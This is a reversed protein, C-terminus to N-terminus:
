KMESDNSKEPPGSESNKLSESDTLVSVNNTEMVTKDSDSKLLQDSIQEQSSNEPNETSAGRKKSEMETDANLLKEEDIEEEVSQPISEGVAKPVSEEVSQPISEEVAQPISEEVALPISEGGEETQPERASDVNVLSSDSSTDKSGVEPKFIFNFNIL